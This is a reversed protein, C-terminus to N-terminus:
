TESLVARSRLVSVSSLASAGPEVALNVMVPIKWLWWLAEQGVDGGGPQERSGPMWLAWLSVESFISMKTVPIDWWYSATRTSLFLWTKRTYTPEENLDRSSIFETRNGDCDNWKRRNLLTRQPSHAPYTLNSKKLCISSVCNVICEADSLELKLFMRRGCVHIMLESNLKWVARKWM